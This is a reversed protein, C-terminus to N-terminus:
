TKLLVDAMISELQAKARDYANPDRLLRKYFHFSMLAGHFAFAVQDVDLDSRFDGAQIGSHLVRKISDIWDCQTETLYDRLLGPQDDLEMSAALFICGGPNKESDAAWNLWNTFLARLRKEGRPLIISPRIVQDIIEAVGQELVEKQLAEKSKFHAFLGSKSMGVAKALGGISLGSLGDSTAMRFATDLIKSRREYGKTKVKNM